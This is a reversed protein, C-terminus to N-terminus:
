RLLRLVTMKVALQKAPDSSQAADAPLTELNEDKMRRVGDVALNTMLTLIEM